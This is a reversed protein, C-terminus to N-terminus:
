YLAVLSGAAVTTGTAMVRKVRLPLIFGGPLSPLTIDDGSATVVRVIGASTLLLANCPGPSLDAADNPTVLAAGEAPAGSPAQLTPM